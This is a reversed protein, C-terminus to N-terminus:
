FEPAEPKQPRTYCPDPIPFLEDRSARLSKVPRRQLFAHLAAQTKRYNAERATWGGAPSSLLFERLRPAATDQESTVVRSSMASLFGMVRDTPQTYLARAFVALVPSSVGPIKPHECVRDIVEKHSAYVDIRKAVSLPARSGDNPGKALIYAIASHKSKVDVGLFRAADKVSRRLGLDIAASTEPPTNRCVVLTQALRSNVIASLTHQGNCLHGESDFMVVATPNAAWKGARMDAAYMAAIQARLLRNGINQQLWTRAIDPTIHEVTLTMEGFALAPSVVVSSLPRPAPGRYFKQATTENKAM